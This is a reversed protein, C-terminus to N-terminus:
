RITLVPCPAHSVLAHATDSTPLHAAMFPDLERVSMVILDVDEKAAFHLISDAAAGFGLQFRMRKRLDSQPAIHDEIWSKKPQEFQQAADPRAAMDERVNIVTLAASYREALSVAYAAAKTTDPAFQVPYLIHRLAGQDSLRGTHPGATLVPCAAKRFIEEAISGMRLKEFGQRGHTGVVAVDIGHRRIIDMLVESIAGEAVIVEYRGADLHLPELLFHNIRRQAEDHAKKIMLSAAEPELHAFSETNIVHAVYLKARYRDAIGSAYTFAAEAAPSFDTAFLVNDISIETRQSAKM